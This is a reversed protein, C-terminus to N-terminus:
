RARQGDRSGEGVPCCRDASICCVLPDDYRRMSGKRTMTPSSWRDIGAGPAPDPDARDREISWARDRNRRYATYGTLDAIVLFGTQIPAAM